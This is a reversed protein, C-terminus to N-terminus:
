FDAKVILDCLLKTCKGTSEHDVKMSHEFPKASNMIVVPPNCSMLSECIDPQLLGGDAGNDAIVVTEPKGNFKASLLASTNETDQLLM